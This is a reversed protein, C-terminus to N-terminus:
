DAKSIISKHTAIIDEAIRAHREEESILRDLDNVIIDLPLIDLETIGKGLLNNIFGGVKVSTKNNLAIQRSETYLNCAEREKALQMGLMDEVGVLRPLMNAMWDMKGGLSTIIKEVKSFHGLSELGLLEIDKLLQEDIIHEFNRIHDIIRPYNLIFDYELVVAKNCLAAIGRKAEDSITIIEM